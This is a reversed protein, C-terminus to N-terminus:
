ARQCYKELFEAAGAVLAEFLARGTKASAVGPKGYIGSETKQRAWTSWFVGSPPRLEESLEDGDPAASLEVLEPHLYLMLSTEMEGAHCSGGTGGRAIGQLARAALGAPNLIAPAVGEEDALRRAVLELLANHHGHGNLVAIKQLGMDALSACVDYVYDEVVDMGVRVTGPWRTMAKGSYGYTVTDMLLVPMMQGLREGVAWAWRAAILCDTSLPLHPGHEEIQGVPLIALPDEDVLKGLEPSHLKGFEYLM